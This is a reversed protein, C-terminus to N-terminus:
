NTSFNFIGGDDYLWWIDITGKKQKAQFITENEKPIQAVEPEGDMGRKVFLNLIKEFLFIAIYRYMNIYSAAPSKKPKVADPTLHSNLSYRNLAPSDPVSEEQFGAIQFKWKPSEKRMESKGMNVYSDESDVRPYAQYTNNSGVTSQGNDLGGTL